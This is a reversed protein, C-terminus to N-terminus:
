VLRNATCGFSGGRLFSDFVKNNKAQLDCVPVDDYARTSYNWLKLRTSGHKRAECLNGEKASWRQM